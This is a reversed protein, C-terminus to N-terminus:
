WFQDRFHDSNSREGNGVTQKARGVSDAERGGCQIPILSVDDTARGIALLILERLAPSPAYFFGAWVANDRTDAITSDPYPPCPAGFLFCTNLATYLLLSTGTTGAHSAPDTNEFVDLRENKM